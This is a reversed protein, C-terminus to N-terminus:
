LSASILHGGAGKTYQESGSVPWTSCIRARPPIPAIQPNKEAIEATEAAVNAIFFGCIANKAAKHRQALDKQRNSKWTASHSNKTLCRCTM